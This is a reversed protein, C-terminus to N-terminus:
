RMRERAVFRRLVGDMRRGGCRAGAAESGVDVAGARRLVEPFGESAHAM